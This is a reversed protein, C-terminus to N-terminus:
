AVARSRRHLPRGLRIGTEGFAVFRARRDDVLARVAELMDIDGALAAIGGRHQVPGLADDSHALFHGLDTPAIKFHDCHTVRGDEDNTVVPAVTGHEEYVIEVFLRALDAELGSKGAVRALM